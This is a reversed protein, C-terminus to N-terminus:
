SDDVVLDESVSVFLTLTSDLDRARSGHNAYEGVVFLAATVLPEDYGKGRTLSQEDRVVDIHRRPHTPQLLAVPYLEAAHILPVALTPDDMPRM